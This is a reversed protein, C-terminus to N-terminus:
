TKMCVSKPAWVSKRHTKMEKEFMNFINLFVKQHYKALTLWIERIECETLTLYCLQQKDWCSHHYFPTGFDVRHTYKLGTQTACHPGKEFDLLYVFILQFILFNFALTNCLILKISDSLVIMISRLIIPSLPREMFKLTQGRM